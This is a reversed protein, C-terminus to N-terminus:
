ILEFHSYFRMADFATPNETGNKPHTVLFYRGWFTDEEIYDYIDDPQFAFEGSALVTQGSFSDDILFWISEKICKCRSM